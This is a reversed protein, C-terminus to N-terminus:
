FLKFSGLGAPLGFFAENSISPHVYLVKCVVKSGFDINTNNFPLPFIVMGNKRFLIEVSHCYILLVFYLVIKATFRRL